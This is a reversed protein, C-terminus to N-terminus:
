LTNAKYLGSNQVQPPLPMNPNELMGQTIAQNAAQTRNNVEMKKLIKKVHNKVTYMSIDLIKGIEWNTKGISIWFLVETERKSLNSYKEM